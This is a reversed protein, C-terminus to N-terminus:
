TEQGQERDSRLSAAPLTLWDSQNRTPGLRPGPSLPLALPLLLRCCGILYDERALCVCVWM